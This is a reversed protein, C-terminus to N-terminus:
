HHKPAQSGPTLTASAHSSAYAPDGQFLVDITPTVNKVHLVQFSINGSANSGPAATAQGGTVTVVVSRNALPTRNSGDPFTKYLTVVVDEAETIGATPALTAPLQGAGHHIELLTPGKHFSVKASAWTSANLDAGGLVRVSVETSDYHRDDPVDVSFPRNCPAELIRDPLSPFRLEFRCNPVVWGLSEAPGGAFTVRPTIVANAGIYGVVPALSISTDAKSRPTPQGSLPPAVKTTTPPANKAQDASLLGAAALLSAACLLSHRM